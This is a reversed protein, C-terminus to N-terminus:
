RKKLKVLCAGYVCCASRSSDLGKYHIAINFKETVHYKIVFLQYVVTFSESIECSTM